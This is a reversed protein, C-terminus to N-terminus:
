KNTKKRPKKPKKEVLANSIDYGIQQKRNRIMDNFADEVDAKIIEKPLQSQNTMNSIELQLEVSKVGLSLCYDLTNESRILQDADYWYLQHATKLAILMNDIISKNLLEYNKANDRTPITSFLHYLNIKKNLLNELYPSDSLIDINAKIYASKPELWTSTFAGFKVNIATELKAGDEDYFYGKEFVINRSLKLTDTM